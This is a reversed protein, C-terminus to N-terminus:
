VKDEYNSKEADWKYEEDFLESDEFNNSSDCRQYCRKNYQAGRIKSLHLSKAAKTGMFHYSTKNPPEVAFKGIFYRRVTWINVFENRALTGM